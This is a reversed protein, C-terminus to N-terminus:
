KLYDHLFKIQTSKLIKQWWSTEENEKSGYGYGYGYGYGDRKFDIDNILISLNPLRNTEFLTQPIKLLRKDLFDARIIYIFLDAHDSLLLTDTVINVPATDIILYDYVESGYELIEEFRGNLLLESPNPPIEGSSIIDFNYKKNAVIVDKIKLNPDNLFHTLGKEQSIELYAALKPKRIDAGILLINKGLLALSSALNISVFTKGEGSLTSTVFIKKSKSNDKSLMYNVNTRLLRFSEAIDGNETGSIIVKSSSKTKPINGIVPAKVVAEVDDYNHVKNDLLSRISIISFPVLLGMLTSIAYFLIPKPSFPIESGDARDVVKANPVPIGLSIANEERKQLLYLYLSEIIQQKRRIDQFEREQQPAANRKSNIQYEQSRAERLSFKLSSRLNELSQEISARLSTLQSELNIVTPNLESSNKIIRNRELLLSNYMLTNQNTESDQLGLNAPILAEGNNKIHDKVYDVLKIQSNLEVISRQIQQASQLDLDSEITLDTIKNKTKFEEVGKDVINLDLSIDDIRDNIFQDTNESILTKYEIADRNYNYVLSNLIDEAKEKIPDTLTLVLLSSKKNEPEIKIKDRYKKAVKKVTSIKIIIPANLIIKKVDVPTINIEGYDTKVNRGFIAESVKENESNLLLISSKSIASITFSTDLKNFISDKSFFNIRFPVEEKYIETNSVSGVNFYSVNIDLDKVVKEFISRSKLVGIENIISTTKDDGLVGLDEFASIETSLGGSEKDNIFITSSVKYQDKAYRLYIFSLSFFVLLGLLFWKWHIGYKEVLENLNFEDDKTKDEIYIREIRKEEKM